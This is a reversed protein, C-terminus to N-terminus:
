RRWAPRERVTALYDVMDDVMRHGLARIENWDAPDLTEEMPANSISM